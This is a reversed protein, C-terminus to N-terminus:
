VEPKSGRQASSAADDDGVAGRHDSPSDAPVTEPAPGLPMSAAFYVEAPDDGSARWASLPPAPAPVPQAIPEQPDDPVKGDTPADHAGEATTAGPIDAQPEAPADAPTGCVEELLETPAEASVPEPALPDPVANLPTDEDIPALDLPDPTTPPPPLDPRAVPRMDPEDPSPPLALPDDPDMGLGVDSQELLGTDALLAELDGDDQEGLPEADPPVLEDPDLDDLPDSIPAAAAAPETEPAPLQAASEAPADSAPADSAPAGPVPDASVAAPRAQGGDLDDGGLPVSSIRTETVPVESVFGASSEEAAFEKVPATPDLPLPVEDLEDLTDDEGSASSDPGPAATPPVAWPDLGRSEGAVPADALPDASGALPEGLQLPAASAIHDAIPIATTFLTALAGADLDRSKLFRIPRPSAGIQRFSAAESQRPGAEPMGLAELAAVLAEQGNAARQAALLGEGAREFWPDDLAPARGSVAVLIPFRRGVRDESMTWVGGVPADGFTRKAAVFAWIAGKGDACQLAAPLGQEMWRDWASIFARPLGRGVFDGASPLKGYYGLTARSSGGLM